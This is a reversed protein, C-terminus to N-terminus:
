DGSPARPSRQEKHLLMDPLAQWGDSARQQWLKMTEAEGDSTTGLFVDSAQGSEWNRADEVISLSDSLSLEAFQEDEESYQFVRMWGLKILNEIEIIAKSLPMQLQESSWRVEALLYWDESTQILANLQFDTIM